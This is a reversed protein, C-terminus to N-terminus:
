SERLLIRLDEVQGVKLHLYDSLDRTTLRGADSASVLTSPLRVGLQTIRKKTAPQGGGGKSPTNWDRDAFQAAVASYLAPDALGLEQLRIAMARTSVKFRNAIRRATDPDDVKRSISIGYSDVLTRLENSPILFAAAYRECWRETQTDRGNPVIFNQCAADTRTTLHAVEHFLSFIRATPHYASNVAVLPAFDDWTSFGRINNKGMSLQLVLVGQDELWSRWSRFAESTGSWSLQTATSIGSDVRDHAAVLQPKENLRHQPLVVRSQDRDKSVWATVDQLRRAWRIQRIEEPGLTHNGLAPARRLATPMGAEAPPEPLFFLASPRKFVNRLATFQGSTPLSTGSEWAEIDEQSLKMRRAVEEVTLGSQERAWTVVSSTIPVTRSAM